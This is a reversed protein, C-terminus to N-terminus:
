AEMAADLTRKLGDKIEEYPMFLKAEFIKENGIFTCPTAYYDYNAIIEPHEGEEIWEVPVEAYAPNESTLEDMAQMGMVCYPCGALHFLTVKKM